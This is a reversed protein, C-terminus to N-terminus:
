RPRLAPGASDAMPRRRRRLLMLGGLGLLALTGPEPVRPQWDGGVLLAVFPAVDATDFSGDQNIDGAAIMTQEDVDFEDRYAQPDTLALVFPAVDATDIVGDLNMDGLLGAMLTVHEPGHDLMFFGGEAGPWAPADLAGEISRATLIPAPEWFPPLEDLLDVSVSGDLTASGTIALRSAASGELRVQLTGAGTQTYRGDIALPRTISGPAVTGDNLVDAAVGSAGGLSGGLLEVSQASLTADALEVHGQPWVRVKQGVQALAQNKM